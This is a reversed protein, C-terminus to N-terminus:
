CGDGFVSLVGLVDSVTVAGDGNVDGFCFPCSEFACTGDDVVAGADYNAADPYTCGAQWTEPWYCGLPPFTCSGDEYAANPDYNCAQPYTCGATEVVICPGETWTVVGGIYTAHCSNSYTVGDCGCVPEYVEICDIMMGLEILAPQVCPTDCSFACDELSSYIIESWDTGLYNGDCGSISICSGDVRGWGLVADCDGLQDTPLSACPDLPDPDPGGTCPGPDYVTVGGYNIAECANSYTVGDCGCVPDFVGPCLADPNIQSPDICGQSWVYAAAGLLIITLFFRM